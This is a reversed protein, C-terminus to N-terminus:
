MPLIGKTLPKSGLGRYDQEPSEAEDLNKYAYSYKFPAPTACANIRAVEKQLSHHKGATESPPSLLRDLRPEYPKREKSRNLFPDFNLYFLIIKLRTM